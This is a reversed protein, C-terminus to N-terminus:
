YVGNELYIDFIGVVSYSIHCRGFHRIKRVNIIFYDFLLQTLKYYSILQQHVEKWLISPLKDFKPIFFFSFLGEIKLNRVGFFSFYAISKFSFPFNACNKM